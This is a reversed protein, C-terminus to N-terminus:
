PNVVWAFSQNRVGDADGDVDVNETWTLTVTCLGDPMRRTGVRPISAGNLACQVSAAGNPLMQQLLQSWEVQDRQALQTFNCGFDCNATGTVPYNGDYDLAWVAEDNARMMDVLSEALFVAQTRYGAVNNSRISLAMTAGLGILGISFILIAVLVEILTFGGQARRSQGRAYSVSM